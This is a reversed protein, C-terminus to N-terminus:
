AEEPTAVDVLESEVRAFSSLRRAENMSTVRHLFSQQWTEGSYPGPPFADGFRQAKLAAIRKGRTM